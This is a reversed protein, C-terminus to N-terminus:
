TGVTGYWFLLSDGDVQTLIRKSAAGGDKWCFGKGKWFRERGGGGEGRMWDLGIWVWGDMMWGDMWGDIDTLSDCVAVKKRWVVFWVM